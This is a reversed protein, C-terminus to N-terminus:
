RKILDHGKVECFESGRATELFNEKTKEGERPHQVSGLYVKEPVEQDKESTEGGKLWAVAKLWMVSQM